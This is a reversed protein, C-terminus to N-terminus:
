MGPWEGKIARCLIEAVGREQFIQSTMLKCKDTYHKEVVNCYFHKTHSNQHLDILHQLKCENSTKFKPLHLVNSTSTSTSFTSKDTFNTVAKLVTPSVGRAEAPPINAFAPEGSNHMVTSAKESDVHSDIDMWELIRPDLFEELSFQENM